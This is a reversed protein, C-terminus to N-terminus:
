ITKLLAQRSNRLRSAIIETIRQMVIFGSKPDQKLIEMLKDGPFSMVKADEICEATATYHFPAVVGSWGFSEYTNKVVSVTISEPRSTLNVLLRISGSILFHLGSAEEGEKFVIGGKEFNLETGIKEIKNLTEESVDKFLDFKNILARAPM